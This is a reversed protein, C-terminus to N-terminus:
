SSCFFILFLVTNMITMTSLCNFLGLFEKIMFFSLEGIRKVQWVFIQIVLNKLRLLIDECNKGNRDVTIVIRSFGNEKASQRELKQKEYRKRGEEEAFEDRYPMAPVPMIKKADKTSAPVFWLRSKNTFRKM